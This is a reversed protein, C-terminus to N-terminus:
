VPNTQKNNIPEVIIHRVRLWLWAVNSSAELNPIGEDEFRGYTLVIIELM